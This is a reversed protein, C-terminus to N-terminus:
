PGGAKGKSYSGCVYSSPCGPIPRPFAAGGAVHWQAASTPTVSIPYIAFMSVSVCVGDHVVVSSTLSKGAGITRLM